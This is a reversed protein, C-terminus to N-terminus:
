GSWDLHHEKGLRYTRTNAQVLRGWDLPEIGGGLMEELYGLAWAWGEGVVVAGVEAAAAAEVVAMVGDMWRAVVALGLDM